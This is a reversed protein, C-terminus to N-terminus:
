SRARRNAEAAAVTHSVPLMRANGEADWAGAGVRSGIPPVPAASTSSLRVTNGPIPGSADTISVIGIM